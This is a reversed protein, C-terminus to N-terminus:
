QISELIKNGRSLLTSCDRLLSDLEEDKFSVRDRPLKGAKVWPTNDIRVDAESLGSDYQSYNEHVLVPLHKRHGDLAQLSAISDFVIQRYGEERCIPNNGTFNYEQLYLIRLSPLNSVETTSSFSNIRNGQLDIRELKLCQGLGEIKVLQNYSLDLHVLSCCNTLHRIRTIKNHSLILHLLNTCQEIGALDKIGASQLELIFVIELSFKDTVAKIVDPSLTTTKEM